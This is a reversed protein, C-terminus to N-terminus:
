TGEDAIIALLMLVIEDHGSDGIFSEELVLHLLM